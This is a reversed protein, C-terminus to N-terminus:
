FRAFVAASVAAAVHGGTGPAIGGRLVTARADLRVGSSKVRSARASAREYYLGGGAYFESGTEVLTRGENLHRVYGVGAIVFPRFRAPSRRRFPTLLVGGEALIQGVRESATTQSAQEIDDTVTTTLRTQNFAAGGEVSIAPTLRVGVTVSAGASSNLRTETNFITRSGGGPTTQTAAVDAIATPGIWRVGGALTVRGPAASQAHATAAASLCALVFLAARCRRM